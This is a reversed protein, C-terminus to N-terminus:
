HTDHFIRRGGNSVWPPAERKKSNDELFNRVQGASRLAPVFENPIIGAPPRLSAV